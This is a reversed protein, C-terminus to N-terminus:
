IKLLYGGTAILSNDPSFSLSPPGIADTQFQYSLNPATPNTMDFVRVTAPSTSSTITSVALFQGNPSSAAFSGFNSGSIPTACYNTSLNKIEVGRGGIGYVYAENGSFAYYPANPDCNWDPQQNAGFNRVLSFNEANLELTPSYSGSGRASVLVTNGSPSFSRGYGISLQFATPPLTRVISGDSVRIFDKGALLTNGDPSFDVSPEGYDGSTTLGTIPPRILSGTNINYLLVYYGSSTGQMNNLIALTQNDSALDIKANGATDFPITRLLIGDSM